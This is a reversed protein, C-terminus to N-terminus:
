CLLLTTFQGRGYGNLKGEHIGIATRSFTPDLMARRHGPSNLWNEVPDQPKQHGVTGFYLNEAVGRWRPNPCYYGADIARARYDQGAKNIHSFYNKTAMDKSHSRAIKQLGPDWVMTGIGRLSRETNIADVIAKEHKTLKAEEKIAQERKRAEKEAEDPFLGQVTSLVPDMTDKVGAQFAIVVAVLIAVITFGIKWPRQRRRVARYHNGGKPRRHHTHLSWDHFHTHPM